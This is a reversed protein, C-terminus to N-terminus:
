CKEIVRTSLISQSSTGHQGEPPPRAALPPPPSSEVKTGKTEMQSGSAKVRQYKKFM